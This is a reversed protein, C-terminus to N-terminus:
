FVPEDDDTAPIDPVTDPVEDGAMMNPDLVPKPVNSTTNKRDFADPDEGDKLVTLGFICQLAYRRYYTLSMGVAKQDSGIAFAISFKASDPTGNSGKTKDTDAIKVVCDLQMVPMQLGTQVPMLPNSTSIFVLKYKRCLDKLGKDWVMSYDAYNYQYGKTNRGLPDVEQQIHFIRETLSMEDLGPVEEITDETNKTAPKRGRRTKTGATETM